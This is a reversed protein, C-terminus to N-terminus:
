AYKFKELEITRSFTKLSKKWLLLTIDSLQTYIQFKRARYNKLNKFNRELTFVHLFPKGITAGGLEQRGHNKYVQIQV